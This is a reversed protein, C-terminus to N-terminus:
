GMVSLALYVCEPAHVENRMATNVREIEAGLVQVLLKFQTSSM